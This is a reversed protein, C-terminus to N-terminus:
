GFALVHGTLERRQLPLRVWSSGPLAQFFGTALYVMTSVLMPRKSPSAVLFSALVFSVWTSLSSFLMLPISLLGVPQTRVAAMSAFALIVGLLAGLARGFKSEIFWSSSLATGVWGRSPFGQLAM